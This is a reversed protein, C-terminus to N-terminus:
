TTSDIEAIAELYNETTKRLKDLKRALPELVDRKLNDFAEALTGGEASLRADVSRLAELLVEGSNTETDVIDLVEVMWKPVMQKGHMHFTGTVREQTFLTATVNRTGRVCVHGKTLCDGAYSSAGYGDDLLTRIDDDPIRLSM